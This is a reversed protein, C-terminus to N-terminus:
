LGALWYRLVSKGAESRRAMEGNAGSCWGLGVDDETIVQVVAWHM